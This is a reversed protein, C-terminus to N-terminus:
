TRNTELRFESPSIGTHKKFLRSFYSPSTFGVTQAVTFISQDSHALLRKAEHLRRNTVYEGPTQKTSARIIRWVHTPSYNVVDALKELSLDDSLHTDIFQLLKAIAGDRTDAALNPFDQVDNTRGREVWMSFQQMLLQVYGRSNNWNGHLEAEVDRFISKIRREAYHDIHSHTVSTDLKTQDGLYIPQLCLNWCSYDETVLPYHPLSAPFVLVMGPFVSYDTGAVHFVGSGSEAYIIEVGPHAHAWSQSYGDPFYRHLFYLGKESMKRAIQDNRIPLGGGSEM